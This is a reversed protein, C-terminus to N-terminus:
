VLKYLCILFLYICINIRFILMSYDLSLILKMSTEEEKVNGGVGFHFSMILMMGFRYSKREEICCLRHYKSYM